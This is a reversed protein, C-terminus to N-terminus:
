LLSYLTFLLFELLHFSFNSFRRIKHVNFVHFTMSSSWWLKTTTTSLSSPSHVLIHFAFENPKVNKFRKKFLCERKWGTDDENKKEWFVVRKKKNEFSWKEKIWSVLRAQTWFRYECWIGSELTTQNSKHLWYIWQPQLREERWCTLFFLIHWNLFFPFLFRKKKTGPWPIHVLPKGVFRICDDYYSPDMQHAHWILDIGLNSIWVM